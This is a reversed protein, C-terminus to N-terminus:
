AAAMAAAGRPYTPSPAVTSPHPRMTSTRMPSLAVTQPAVNNCFPVISLWGSAGVSTPTPTMARSKIRAGPARTTSPANMSRQKTPSAQKTSCPKVAMSQRSNALPINALPSATETKAAGCVTECWLDLRVIAQLRENALMPLPDFM